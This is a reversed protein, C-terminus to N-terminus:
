RGRLWLNLNGVEPILFVVKGEVRDQTIPPDPAEVNDGQTTFVRGGGGEEITVIRHVVPLSGQRFVIVDNVRLSAPGVGERVVAVDGRGYAPEMSIGDVVVLHYGFAGTFFLVGLAVVALTVAWGSWRRWRPKPGPNAVEPPAPLREKGEATDGYISRVLWAAALPTLVGVLLL